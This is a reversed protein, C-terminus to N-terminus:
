ATRQSLGSHALELEELAMETGSANLSPGTWKTPFADKLTWRVVENFADDYLVIDVDQRFDADKPNKHFWDWLEKGDVMGRKLSVNSTSEFGPLKRVYPQREHGERYEIVSRSRDLGSAERFNGQIISGIEVTFNYVNIPERVPFDAIGM